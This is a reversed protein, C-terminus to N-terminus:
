SEGIIPSSGDSLTQSTAAMFLLILHSVLIVPIPIVLLLQFIWWGMNCTEQQHESPPKRTLLPTREHPKPKKVPDTDQDRSSSADNSTSSVPLTPQDELGHEESTHTRSPTPSRKLSRTLKRRRLIRETSGVVTALFVFIYWGTLFYTGGIQLGHLLATGVVLLIWALIHLQYLMTLRQQNPYRPSSKFPVHTFFIVILFPLTLM